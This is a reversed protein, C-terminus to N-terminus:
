ERAEPLRAAPEPLVVTAEPLVVTATPPPESAAAQAVELHRSPNGIHIHPGTAAGEVRRRFAIFPIKMQRLYGILTRGERGDPNLAVDMSERHDLGLKDHTDTQGMASVPLDHGFKKQFFERIKEAKELSWDASYKLGQMVMAPLRQARAAPARRTRSPAFRSQAEGIGASLLVAFCAALVIHRGSLRM